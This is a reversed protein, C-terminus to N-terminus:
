FAMKPPHLVVLKPNILVTINSDRTTTIITTTIISRGHIEYLIIAFSYVDGKQSGCLPVREGLRINIIMM